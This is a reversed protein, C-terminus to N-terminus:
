GRVLKSAFGLYNDPTIARLEAKIADGVDLGDIFEAM